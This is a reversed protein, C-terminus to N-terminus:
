PRRGIAKPMPATPRSDVSRRSASPSRRRLPRRERHHRAATSSTIHRLAARQDVELWTSYNPKWQVFAGSVTREGAPTSLDGTGKADVTTSRTASHTAAMPSPTAVRASTSARDYQPRRLRRYRASAALTQGICGGLTGSEGCYASNTPRQRIKTQDANTETWYVNGDFDFLRDDPGRIAGARARRDINHCRHRLDSGTQGPPQGTLDYNTITTSAASSSQPRRGAPVTVKAIGSGVDPLRHEPRTATATRSLRDASPLHRRRLRRFESQRPAGVFMSASGQAQTPASSAM